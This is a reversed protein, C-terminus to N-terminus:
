VSVFLNSSSLFLHSEITMRISDHFMYKLIVSLVKPVAFALMAAAAVHNMRPRLVLKALNIYTWFALFFEVGFGKVEKKHRNM